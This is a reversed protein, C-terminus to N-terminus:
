KGGLSKYFSSLRQVADKHGSRAAAEAMNKNFETVDQDMQMQKMSMNMQQSFQQNSQDYLLNKFNQDRVANQQEINRQKVAEEGAFNRQNAAEQSQFVRGQEEQNFAFAKDAEKQGLDAAAVERQSEIDGIANQKQGELGKQILAGQKIINGSGLRGRAAASRMLQDQAAQEQTSSEGEAKSRLVDFRRTLATSQKDAYPNSYAQAKYINQQDPQYTEPTYSLNQPSAFNGQYSGAAAANPDESSDSSSGSKKTPNINRQAIQGPLLSAKTSDAWIAGAKGQKTDNLFDTAKGSKDKAAIGRISRDPSFRM